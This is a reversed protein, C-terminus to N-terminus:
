KHAFLDKRWIKIIKNQCWKRIGGNEALVARLKEKQQVIVATLAFLRYINKLIQVRKGTKQYFLDFNKRPNGLDLFFRENFWSNGRSIDFNTRCYNLWQFGCPHFDRECSNEDMPKWQPLMDIMKCCGRKQKWTYFHLQQESLYNM